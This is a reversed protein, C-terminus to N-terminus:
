HKKCSKIYCIVETPHHAYDDVVRINDIIGKTQFRRNTGTFKYLGEKIADFNCGLTFCASIAALSNNVNHIGPVSLNINSINQGEKILKFSACGMNMIFSIKQVGCLMKPNLEM